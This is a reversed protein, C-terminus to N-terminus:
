TKKAYYQGESCNRCIDFGAKMAMGFEDNTFGLKENKSFLHRLVCAHRSLRLKGPQHLCQFLDSCAQELAAVNLFGDMTMEGVKVKGIQYLEKAIRNKLRINDM